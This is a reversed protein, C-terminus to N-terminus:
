MPQGRGQRLGVRFEGYAADHIGHERLGIPAGDNTTLELRDVTHLAVVEGPQSWATLEVEGPSGVHFRIGIGITDNM